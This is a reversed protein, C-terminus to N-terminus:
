SFPRGPQFRPADELQVFAIGLARISPSQHRAPLISSEAM